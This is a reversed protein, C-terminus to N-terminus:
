KLLSKKFVHIKDMPYEKVNHVQPRAGYMVVRKFTPDEGPYHIEGVNNVVRTYDKYCNLVKLWDKLPNRPNLTGADVVMRIQVRSSKKEEKFKIWKNYGTVMAKEYNASVGVYRVTETDVYGNRVLWDQKDAQTKVDTHNILKKGTTEIQKMIYTTIENLINGKYKGESMDKIVDQIDAALKGNPELEGKSFLVMIAHVIDDRTAAGFKKYQMNLKIGLSVRDRLSLKNLITAPVNKFGIKNLIDLRTIGDVIEYDNGQKFLVPGIDAINYGITKIDFAIDDYEPNTGVRVLQDREKGPFLINNLDVLENSKFYNAILKGRRSQSPYNTEYTKLDIYDFSSKKTLETVCVDTISM